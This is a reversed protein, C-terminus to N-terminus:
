DLFEEIPFNGNTSPLIDDKARNEDCDGLWRTPSNINLTFGKSEKFNYSDPHQCPPECYNQKSVRAGRALGGACRRATEFWRNNADLTLRAFM